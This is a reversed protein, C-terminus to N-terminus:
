AARSELRRRTWRALVELRDDIPRVTDWYKGGFGLVLEQLSMLLRPHRLLAVLRRESLAALGHQLVGAKRQGGLLPPLHAKLRATTSHVASLEAILEALLGGVLHRELWCALDSRIAPFGSLVLPGFTWAKMLQEVTEFALRCAFEPRHGTARALDGASANAWRLGLIQRREHDLQALAAQLRKLREAAPFPAPSGTRIRVLDRAQGILWAPDISAATAARDWLESQASGCEAPRLRAAFYAITRPGRRDYHQLLKRSLM